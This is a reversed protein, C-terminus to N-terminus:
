IIKRFMIDIINEKCTRTTLTHQSQFYKNFTLEIFRGKLRILIKLFFSSICVSVHYNLSFFPQNSINVAKILTIHQTSKPIFHNSYTDDTGVTMM